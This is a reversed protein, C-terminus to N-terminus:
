LNPRGLRDREDDMRALEERGTFVVKPDVAFSL